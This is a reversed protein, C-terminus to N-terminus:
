SIKNYIKNCCTQGKEFDDDPLLYVSLFIIWIWCLAINRKWAASMEDKCYEIDYLLHDWM